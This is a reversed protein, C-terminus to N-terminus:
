YEREGARCHRCGATGDMEAECIWGRDGSPGRVLARRRIHPFLVMRSFAHAYWRSRRCHLEHSTREHAEDNALLFYDLYIDDLRRLGMRLTRELNGFVRRRANQYMYVLFCEGMGGALFSRADMRKGEELDVACRDPYLVRCVICYDLHFLRRQSSPHRRVRTCWARNLGCCLVLCHQSTDQHLQEHPLALELIPPCWGARQTAVNTSLRVTRCIIVYLAFSQRSAALMQLDTLLRREGRTQPLSLFCVMSSGMMYQALIIFSWMALTGRKGFSNLLIQAMPQGLSSNMLGQLDQGMCFALTINM